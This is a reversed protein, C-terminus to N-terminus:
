SVERIEVGAMEWPKASKNLKTLVCELSKGIVLSASVEASIKKPVYGLMVGTGDMKNYEIRIANPDYKNTPEAVLSLNEGEELDKLVSNIQHHQVGAIMFVWLPKYSQEDDRIDKEEEM